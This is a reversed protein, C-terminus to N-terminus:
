NGSESYPVPMKQGKYVDINTPNKETSWQGHRFNNKTVRKSNRGQNLRKRSLWISWLQQGSFRDRKTSGYSMYNKDGQAKADKPAFRSWNHELRFNHGLEHVTKSSMENISNPEIYSIKAGFQGIGGVQHIKGDKDTTTGEVDDVIVTLHEDDKVDSMRSVNRFSVSGVTFTFVKKENATYTGKLSKILRNRVNSAM